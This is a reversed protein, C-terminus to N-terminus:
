NNDAALGAIEDASLVRRYVRVSDLQGRFRARDMEANYGGITISNGPNIFGRRELNGVEKGNVYLRMIQNGFTAAIHSWENVPLPKPGNLGHSFNERPVQWVPHGSGLGLRYGDRGHAVTNLM